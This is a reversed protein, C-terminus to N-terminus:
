SVSSEKKLAQDSRFFAWGTGSVLYGVSLFFLYEPFMRLPVLTYAVLMNVVQFANVPKSWRLVFKPIRVNSVMLAGACILVLPMWPSVFDTWGQDAASLWGSALIAGCLTTPIGVFMFGSGEPDSVNFRALRIAVALAYVACAGAVVGQGPSVVGGTLHFFVLAAPAIGFAVFDAFSDMEAGFDSSANLARAAAGDLKDLLVGWLILWAASEFEGATSQVVSAFGLVMSLATFSNPVLYKWIMFAHGVSPVLHGGVITCILM